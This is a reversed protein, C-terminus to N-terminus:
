EDRPRTGTNHVDRVFAFKPLTMYNSQAWGNDDNVDHWYFNIDDEGLSRCYLVEGAQFFRYDSVCRLATTNRDISM